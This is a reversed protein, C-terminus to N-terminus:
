KMGGKVRKRKRRLTQNYKSRSPRRDNAKSKTIRLRNYRRAEMRKPVLVLLNWLWVSTGLAVLLLFSHETLLRWLVGFIHEPLFALVIAEADDWLGPLDANLGAIIGVSIILAWIGKLVTWCRRLITAM